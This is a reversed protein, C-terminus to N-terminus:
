LVVTATVRAGVTAASLKSNGANRNAKILVRTARLARVM